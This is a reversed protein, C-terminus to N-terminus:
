SRRRGGAGQGARAACSEGVVVLRMPDIPKTLYDVAGMRLGEQQDGMVSVIVVPIDTTLPDNKLQQLLEFGDADPLYIDLTILNPKNARAKELADKARGAISVQYGSATLHRGILEAIDEITKSSWCMGGM